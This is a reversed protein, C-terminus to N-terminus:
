AAAPRPLFRRSGVLTTVILSRQLKHPQQGLLTVSRGLVVEAEPGAACVFLILLLKLRRM